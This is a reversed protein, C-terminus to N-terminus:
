LVLRGKVMEPLVSSAALFVKPDVQLPFALQSV